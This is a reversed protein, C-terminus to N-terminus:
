RLEKWSKGLRIDRVQERSVGLSMALNGDRGRYFPGLRILRVDADTLKVAWHEPGSPHRRDSLNEVKLRWRLNRLRNDSRVKNRHDSEHERTPPEGRFAILVMRHVREDKHRGDALCLTVKLYGNKQTKPKLIRGSPSRVQGDSSVSYGTDRFSRFRTM